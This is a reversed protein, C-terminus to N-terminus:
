SNRKTQNMEKIGSLLKNSLYDNTMFPINEQINGWQKKSLVVIDQNPNENVVMLPYDEDTVHKMYAKLHDRFESYIITEM